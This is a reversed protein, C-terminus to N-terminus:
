DPHVGQRTGVRRFRPRDSCVIHALCPHTQRTRMEHCPKPRTRVYSPKSRRSMGPLFDIRLGGAPFRSQSQEILACFEAARNRRTGTKRWEALNNALGDRFSQLERLKTEVARLSAEALRIVCECTERGRGRLGLVRKIEELTFGLAQAQKIFRLRHVSVPDYVRYGAFTRAPKPLLGTREYFRVTDPKVGATRALQGILLPQEQTRM